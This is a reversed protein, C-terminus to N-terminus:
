LILLFVQELRVRCLRLFYFHKSIWCKGIELVASSKSLEWADETQGEPLLLLCIFLPVYCASLPFVSTSPSFRTGTCSEAQSRLRAETTYPRRSVVQAIARGM